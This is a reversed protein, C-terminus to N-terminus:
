EFNFTRARLESHARWDTCGSKFSLVWLDCVVSLNELFVCHSVSRAIIVVSTNPSLLGVLQLWANTILVQNKEDQLPVPTSLVCPALQHPSPSM